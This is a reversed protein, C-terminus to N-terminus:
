RGPSTCSLRFSTNPSPRPASLGPLYLAFSFIIPQCKFLLRIYYFCNIGLKGGPVRRRRKEFSFVIVSPFLLPSFVHLPCYKGQQQGNEHRSCQHCYACRGLAVLRFYVARLVGLQGIGQTFRFAALGDPQELVDVVAYGGYAVCAADVVTEILAHRQVTVAVGEAAVYAHIYVGGAARHLVDLEHVDVVIYLHIRIGAVFVAPLALGAVLAGDVGGAQGALCDDGAASEVVDVPVGDLYRWFRGRCFYYNCVIHESMSIRGTSLQSIYMDFVIRGRGETGFNLLQRDRVVLEIIRLVRVVDNVGNTYPKYFISSGLELESSVVNLINRCHCHIVAHFGDLQIWHTGPRINIDVINRRNCIVLILINVKFKLICYILSLLTDVQHGVGCVLGGRYRRPFRDIEVGVAMVNARESVIALQGNVVSLDGFSGCNYIVPHQVKVFVASRGILNLIVASKEYGASGGVIQVLDCVIRAACHGYGAAGKRCLGSGVPKRGPVLSRLAAVGYDVLDAFHSNGFTNCRAHDCGTVPGAAVVVCANGLAQVGGCFRLCMKLYVAGLIRHNVSRIIAPAAEIRILVAEGAANDNLVVAVEQVKQAAIEVQFIYLAVPEAYAKVASRGIYSNLVSVKVLKLYASGPDAGDLATIIIINYHVLVICIRRCSCRLVSGLEDYVAAGEAAVHNRKFISIVGGRSFGKGDLVEKGRPQHILQVVAANVAVVLGDILRQSLRLGARYDAVNAVVRGGRVIFHGDDVAVAHAFLDFIDCLVADKHKGRRGALVAIDEHAPLARVPMRM